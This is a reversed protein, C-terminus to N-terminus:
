RRQRKIRRKARNHQALTRSFIHKGENGLVFYLFGTEAPELVADISALGPNCIPGPPLKEHLYTNYPSDIKLDDYILRAKVTGQAYQVTACSELKMNKKLRNLFVSAIVPRESDIRAEKEVISALTVVDQISMDRRECRERRSADFKRTFNDLMIMMITECDERPGVMYTDPFLVGELNGCATNWPHGRMIVSRAVKDFEDETAFGKDVLLKRIDAVSYGEPVVLSVTDPVGKLLEAVIEELSCSPLLEYRGAHLQAEVDKWRVYVCFAVWSRIIGHDELRHAISRSSWGPEIVVQVPAVARVDAPASVYAAAVVLIISIGAALLFAIQLFTIFRNIHNSM